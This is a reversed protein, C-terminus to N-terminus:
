ELRDYAKSVDVKFGAIGMDGQTKRHIYHNVEFAMFANDILLQNEIFASQQESIIIQLIPKARNAMIKSLIRMLVNCLSIPRLDAVKQPHKVKPILCVVTTNIDDPLVGTDCFSQCFKCVDPGAIDWYAQFFSPNLGDMGPAKNPHMAFVVAKVESEIIPSLLAHKQAEAVQKFVIRDSLREETNSASFINEFYKTIIGQIEEEKETWEGSDDKLKKIMNQEKRASAYKHFFRTNKDGDRLWFQKARQRWFIEKKELLKLYHWRAKEYQRLGVVDRRNRLRKMTQRYKLMRQKMDRILGGGWAELKACCRVMKEM